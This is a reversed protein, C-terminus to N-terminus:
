VVAESDLLIYTGAIVALNLSSVGFSRWDVGQNDQAYQLATEFQKIAQEVKTEATKKINSAERAESSLLNDLMFRLHELQKREKDKELFLRFATQVEEHPAEADAKARYTKWLKDLECNPDEYYDGSLSRLEADIQRKMNTYESKLTSDSNVASGISQIEAVIKKRKIELASFEQWANFTPILDPDTCTTSTCDFTKDSPIKEKASKFAKWAKDIDSKPDEFYLGCIQNYDNELKKRQDTLTQREEVIMNEVGDPGKLSALTETLLQINDLSQKQPLFSAVYNAASTAISAMDSLSPLSSFQTSLNSGIGSFSPLLPFYASM